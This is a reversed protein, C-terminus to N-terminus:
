RSPTIRNWSSPRIAIRGIVIPKKETPTTRYSFLTHHSANLPPKVKLAVNMESYTPQRFRPRIIPKPSIAIPFPEGKHGRLGPTPSCGNSLSQKTPNPKCTIPRALFLTEPQAHVPVTTAIPWIPNSAGLISRKM